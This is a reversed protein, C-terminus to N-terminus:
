RAGFQVLSSIAAVRFLLSCVWINVRAFVWRPNCQDSRHSAGTLGTHGPSRLIFLVRPDVGGFGFRSRRFWDVSKLLVKPITPVGWPSDMALNIDVLVQWILLFRLFGVLFVELGLVGFGGFDLGKVWPNPLPILPLLVVFPEWMNGGDFGWSCPGSFVGLFGGISPESFWWFLRSCCLLAKLFWASDDICVLSTWVLDLKGGSWGVRECFRVM